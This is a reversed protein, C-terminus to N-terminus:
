LTRRERVVKGILLRCTIIDKVTTSCEEGVRELDRLATRGDCRIEVDGDGLRVVDGAWTLGSRILKKKFSEKM